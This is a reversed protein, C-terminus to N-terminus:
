AHIRTIWYPIGGPDADGFRANPLYLSGKYAAVTSPVRLDPDTLTGLVAGRTGARDLRLVAVRNLRNQVVYLTRGRLLLGDGNTLRAGGLDVQRTVGSHPDVRFLLGTNSQVVLLARRDPTLAIGNANTAGPTQVWDGTLPLTTVQESRGRRDVRYLQARVSDTFWAYRQGLVVDNVFSPGTTFTFSRVVAKRRVDVVRGDGARGGAVFLRRGDLKMGLSATGPGSVITQGRGTRLDAAYIDGSVRSGTYVVPARGIAIGEPQFGTPLEIRDPFASRPTAEAAVTGTLVLAASLCATVLVTLLPRSSTTM